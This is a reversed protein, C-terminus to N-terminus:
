RPQRLMGAPRTQHSPQLAQEPSPTEEQGGQGWGAAGRVWLVQDKRQVAFTM